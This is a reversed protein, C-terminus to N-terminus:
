SAGAQDLAAAIIDPQFEPPAHELTERMFKGAAVSEAFGRGCLRNQFEAVNGYQESIAENLMAAAHSTTIDHRRHWDLQAIEQAWDSDQQIPQYAAPNKM